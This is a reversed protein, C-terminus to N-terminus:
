ANVLAQQVISSRLEPGTRSLASGLFSDDDIWRDRECPDLIVPMRNHLKSVSENAATTLIVFASYVEGGSDRFDSVMGAMYLIREGPLRLLYKDKKKGGGAKDWEFFGGSLVVCRRELLPKRFINKELATEARANIIVGSNKWHPFGWRVAAVGGATLVPALNTPFVEGRALSEAAKLDAIRDLADAYTEDDVLYRGCM